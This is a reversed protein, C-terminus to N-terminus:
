GEELEKIKDFTRTGLTDRGHDLGQQCSVIVTFTDVPNESRNCKMLAQITHAGGM